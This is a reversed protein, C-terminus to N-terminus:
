RYDFQRHVVQVQNRIKCSYCMVSLSAPLCYELYNGHLLLTREERQTGATMAKGEEKETSYSGHISPIHM